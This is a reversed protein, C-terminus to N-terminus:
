QSATVEDAVLLTRYAEQLSPHRVCAQSSGCWHDALGVALSLMEGAVVEQARGQHPVVAVLAFLQTLPFMAVIVGWVSLTAIALCSQYSSRQARLLVLFASQRCSWLRGVYTCGWLSVLFMPLCLGHFTSDPLTSMRRFM